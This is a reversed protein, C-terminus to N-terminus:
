LKWFLFDLNWNYCNSNPNKKKSVPIRILIIDTKELDNFNM